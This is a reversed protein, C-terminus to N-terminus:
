NTPLWGSRLLEDRIFACIERAHEVEERAGEEDFRFARSYDAQERHKQLAGFLRALKPPVRGPKVFHLFFLDHVGHHRRAELGETLLLASVLHFAAYYGRSVADDWLRVSLCVDAARLSEAGREVEAAVNARRNEGTV